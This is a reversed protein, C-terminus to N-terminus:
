GPKGRELVDVLTKMDKRYIRTGLSDPRLRMRRVPELEVLDRTLVEQVPRDISRWPSGTGAPGSDPRTGEVLAPTCDLWRFPEAVFPWVSELPHDFRFSFIAQMAKSM